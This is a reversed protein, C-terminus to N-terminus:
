EIGEVVEALTRGRETGDWVEKRDRGGQKGWVLVLGVGEQVEVRLRGKKCVMENGLGEQVWEGMLRIHNVVARELCWWVYNEAEEESSFRQEGMQRISVGDHHTTIVYQTGQIPRQLATRMTINLSWGGPLSVSATTELM